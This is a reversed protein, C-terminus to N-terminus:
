EGFLSTQQLKDSAATTETAAPQRPQAPPTPPPLDTVKAKKPKQKATKPAAKSASRRAEADAKQKQAAELEALYGQEREGMGQAHADLAGTIAAPLTLDGLRTFRLSPAFGHDQVGLVVPRGAPDGDEPLLLLTLTVTCRAFDYPERRLLNEYRTKDPNDDDYDDAVGTSRAVAPASEANATPGEPETGEPEAADTADDHEDVTKESEDPM